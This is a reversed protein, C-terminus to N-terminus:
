YLLKLNVSLHISVSPQPGCWEASRSHAVGNQQVATPCVMRSFPQPGCWEASRLLLFVGLNESLKRVNERAQIGCVAVGKM